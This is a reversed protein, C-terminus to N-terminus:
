YIFYTIIVVINQCTVFIKVKNKTLVSHIINFIKYCVLLSTEQLDNPPFTSYNQDLASKELNYLKKSHILM